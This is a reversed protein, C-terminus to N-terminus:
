VKYKNMVSLLDNVCNQVQRYNYGMSELKNKREDGNGYVGAIVELATSVTPTLKILIADPM